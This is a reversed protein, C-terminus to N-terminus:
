LDTPAKLNTLKFHATPLAKADFVWMYASMPHRFFRRRSPRIGRLRLVRGRRSRYAPSLMKLLFM